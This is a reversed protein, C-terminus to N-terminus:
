KEVAELAVALGRHGGAALLRGITQQSVDFRDAISAQSPRDADGLSAAIIEAQRGTWRRSIEDCLAFVARLWDAGEPEAEWDVSLRATAGLRDLGRGSLEFAPGSAEGLGSDPPLRGAGIGAAIRTAFGPGLQRLRAQLLLMVRLTQRPHPALCQWGDGRFRTFRARGFGWVRMAETATASLAAMAADVEGPGLRGSGVLDGTLVVLEPHMEPYEPM